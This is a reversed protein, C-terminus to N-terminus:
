SSLPDGSRLKKQADRITGNLWLIRGLHLLRNASFGTKKEKRFSDRHSLGLEVGYKEHINDWDLFGLQCPLRM